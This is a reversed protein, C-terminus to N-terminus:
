AEKAKEKREKENREYTWTRSAARTNHIGMNDATIVSEESVKEEELSEKGRSTTSSRRMMVIMEDMTPATVIM